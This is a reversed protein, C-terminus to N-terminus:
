FLTRNNPLTGRGFDDGGSTSIEVLPSIIGNMQQFKLMNKIKKFLLIEDIHGNLRSQFEETKKTVKKM